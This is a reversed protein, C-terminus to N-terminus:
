CQVRASMHVSVCVRMHVGVCMRVHVGVCVRVHVCERLGECVRVHVSVGELHSVAPSGHLFSSRTLQCGM